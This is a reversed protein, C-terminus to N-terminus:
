KENEQRRNEKYDKSRRYQFWINLVRPDISHKKALELKEKRRPKKNVRNYYLSLADIQTESMPHKRIM